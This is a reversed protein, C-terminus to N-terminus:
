PAALGTKRLRYLLALAALALTTRLVDGPQTIGTRAAIAFQIAILIVALVPGAPCRYVTEPFASERRRFLILSAYALGFLIASAFYYIGLLEEFRRWFVAVGAIGTVVALAWVPAQADSMRAMFRFALGDRALAWTVRIASLLMSNLAGLCVVMVTALMVTRGVPGFLRRMVEGPVSAYGSMQDAPVVWLMAANVGVYLLTLTVACGILARPLARRVDRIEEAMKVADTGGDYSWHVSLMAAIFVGMLALGGVPASTTAPISSPMSAAAVVAPGTASGGWLFAAGILALLAAAKLVTLANQVGAGIRLGLANVAAVLVIAPMGFRGAWQPDVEFLECTFDGFARGLLAAAGGLIFVTYAWGFFFAVFEGYAERLYVYEGGARPFRTALEATVLAQMLAVAGGITWAALIWGPTGLQGAVEGPTRFIGSGIAVGMGILLATPAGIIRRLPASAASHEPESHYM